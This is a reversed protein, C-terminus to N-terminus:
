PLTTVLYSTQLSAQLAYVAASDGLFRREAKSSAPMKGRFSGDSIIDKNCSRGM